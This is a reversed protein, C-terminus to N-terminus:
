TIVEPNVCWRPAEGKLVRVAEEAYMTQLDIGAEESYWAHHPTIIVNSFSFLPHNDAPPETDMVDLGVGALWGEQLCRYLGDENVVSGRGTNIFYASKKMQRFRDYSFFHHTESTLPLHCSIYDSESKCQGVVLEGGAADVVSKEIEIDPTQYDTLAIKFPATM